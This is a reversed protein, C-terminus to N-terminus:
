LPSYRCWTSGGPRALAPIASVDAGLSAPGAGDLQQAALFPVTQLQARGFVKALLLFIVPGAVGWGLIGIVTAQIPSVLLWILGLLCLVASVIMLLRVARELRGHRFVPAAFRMSLAFFWGWAFIDM